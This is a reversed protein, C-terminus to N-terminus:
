SRRPPAAPPPAPRARPGPPSLPQATPSPLPTSGHPPQAKAGPPDADVNVLTLAVMDSQVKATEPHDRGPHAQYRHQGSGANDRPPKTRTSTLMPPIPSQPTRPTPQRPQDPRPGDPHHHTHHQHHPHHAHPPAVAFRYRRQGISVCVHGIVVNATTLTSATPRGAPGPMWSPRRRVGGRTGMKAPHAEPPM